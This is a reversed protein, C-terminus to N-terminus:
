TSREQASPAFSHTPVVTPATPAAVEILQVRQLGWVLSRRDRASKEGAVRASGSMPVAGITPYGPTKACM